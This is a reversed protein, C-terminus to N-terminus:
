EFISVKIVFKIPKLIIYPSFKICIEIITEIITFTPVMLNSNRNQYFITSAKINIGCGSVRLGPLIDESSIKFNSSFRHFFLFKKTLQELFKLRKRQFFKFENLFIM